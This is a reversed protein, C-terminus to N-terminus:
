GAKFNQQLIQVFKVVQNAELVLTPLFDVKFHANCPIIKSLGIQMCEPWKQMLPKTWFHRVIPDLPAM